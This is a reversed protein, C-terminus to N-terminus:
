LNDILHRNKPLKIIFSAGNTNNNKVSIKGKCNNEIITKSMCLGLGTGGIESKTTFYSDFVKDLYKDTIGGANDSIELFCFNDKDYTKITIQRKKIDRQIFADEANKLINLIVQKIENKLTFIEYYSSFITKIKIQNNVLIPKIIKFTDNVIDELTTTTKKKDIKFFDRFDNITNSLHKSSEEIIQLEKIFEEKNFDDMLLRGYLFSTTASISVLPQRWQHSIMNLMEGMQALRGQFQLQKDKQRLVDVQAKIRDRLTDNILLLEEQYGVRQSIDTIIWLVEKREKLINGSIRTWIAEGNKHRLKYELTPTFKEKKIIKNFAIKGFKNSSSQSLHILDVSKNLLEDEKYGLLNCFALNVEIMIRNEDVILMAVECNDFVDEFYKEKKKM